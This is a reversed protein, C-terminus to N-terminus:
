RPGTSASPPAPEVVDTFRVYPALRELTARGIGPVRLLDALRRFPRRSRATVIAAARSPGIGPLEDLQEATATNVNIVAQAYGSPPAQLSLVLVFVLSLLLTRM